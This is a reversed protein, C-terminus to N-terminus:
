SWPVMLGFPGRAQPTLRDLLAVAAYLLGGDILTLGRDGDMLKICFVCHLIPHNGSFLPVDLLM